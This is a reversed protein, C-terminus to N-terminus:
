LSPGSLDTGLGAPSPDPSPSRPWHPPCERCDAEDTHDECDFDGDCRWLKLACHGNGCPFENPECPPTPGPPGGPWPEALPRRPREGVGLVRVGAGRGRGARVATQKMVATPATRKGTVCMTKPFATGATVRLRMRGVPCLGAQAPCHPRPPQLLQASSPLSHKQNPQRRHLPGWIPCSPASHPCRSRQPCLWSLTPVHPRSREGQVGGRGWAGSGTVVRGPDRGVERRAQLM